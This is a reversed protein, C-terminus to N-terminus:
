NEDWEVSIEIIEGCEEVVERIAQEDIALQHCTIQHSRSRGDIYLKVSRNQKENGEAQRKTYFIVAANILAAIVTASGTITAILVADAIAEGSTREAPRVDIHPRHKLPTEAALGEITRNSIELEKLRIRINTKM